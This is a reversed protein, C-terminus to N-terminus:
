SIIFFVSRVPSRSQRFFPFQARGAPHQKQEQQAFAQRQRRILGIKGKVARVILPEINKGPRHLDGAIEELAGPRRQDAHDDRDIGGQARRVAPRLRFAENGIQETHAQQKRTQQAHQPQAKRKNQRPQCAKGVPGIGREAQPQDHRGREAIAQDINQLADQLRLPVEARSSRDIQRAADQDKGIKGQAPPAEAHRPKKDRDHRPQRKLDHHQGDGRPVRAKAPPRGPHEPVLVQARRQPAAQRHKQACKGILKVQKAVVGKQGADRRLGDAQILEHLADDHSEHRHQGRRDIRDAPGRQAQQSRVAPKRLLVDGHFVAEQQRGAGAHGKKADLLDGVAGKKRQM